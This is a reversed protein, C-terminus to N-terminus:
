CTCSLLKSALELIEDQAEGESECEAVDDGDYDDDDAADDDADDDDDDDDDENKDWGM